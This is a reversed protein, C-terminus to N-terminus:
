LVRAMNSLCAGWHFGNVINLGVPHDNEADRVLKKEIVYSVPVKVLLAANGWLENGGGTGLAIATSGIDCWFAAWRESHQLKTRAEAAAFYKDDLKYGPGATMGPSAEVNHGTPTMYKHPDINPSVACGSLGAVVVVLLLMTMAQVNWRISFGDRKTVLAVAMIPLAATFVIEALIKVLPIM